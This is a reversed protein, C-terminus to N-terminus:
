KRHLRKINIAMLLPVLMLLSMLLTQYHYATIVNAIGATLTVVLSLLISSGLQHFVNVASSTAGGLGKPTNAVGSVTLPGFSFGQGIGIVIMPLAVSITYSYKLDLGFLMSVGLLTVITGFLLLNENKYKSSLKSQLMGFLFQPITEPMFGFASLLPTFGYYKQLVQPVLFFFSFMSGIYFFRAIYASVREQDKFIAMPMIPNDIKVERFLFIVLLVVFIAIFLGKHGTGNIANVLSLIALVSLISGIYDLHSHVQANTKPVFFITLLILLIGLPVNILFGLRWSYFTTVLGGIILGISAGLGATVGYFSIAKERKKGEYTDLLLALSTPALIASGIGQFARMVIIFLGNPALGVLLSFLTFIVLGTLFVPKRGYLDGLRGGLLLLSGFVLAYINTIWAVSQSTMHLSSAIQVTSTFVVSNDLLILFYSILIIPLIIGFKYKM